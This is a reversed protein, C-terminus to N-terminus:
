KNAKIITIQQIKQEAEHKATTIDLSLHFNDNKLPLNQSRQFTNSLAILLHILFKIYKSLHTLAMNCM